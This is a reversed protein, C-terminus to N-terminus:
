VVETPNFAADFEALSDDVTTAEVVTETTAVPERRTLTKIVPIFADIQAAQEAGLDSVPTFNVASYSNTGKVVREASIKTVVHHLKKGKLVIRKLMYDDFRSLSAPSLTVLLPLMEGSPLIYIRRQNKNAKARPNADPDVIQASGWQNYPCDALTVSPTPLGKAKVYELGAETVVQTVGDLSYAHPSGVMGKSLWLVSSAHQDVIVGTIDKAVDPSDTGNPIEFGSGEVKVRDFTISMGALDAPDITALSPTEYKVISSM